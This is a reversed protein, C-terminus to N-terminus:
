PRHKPDYGSLLTRIMDTIPASQLSTAHLTEVWGLNFAVALTIRILHRNIRKSLM